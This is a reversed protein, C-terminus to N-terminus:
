GAWSQRERDVYDNADIGQWLAKGLGRLELLSRRAGPGAGSLEGALEAILRLRDEAPLSRALKKAEDYPLGTAM